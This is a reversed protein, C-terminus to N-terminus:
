LNGDIVNSCGDDAIKHTIEGLLGTVKGGLPMKFIQGSKNALACALHQGDGSLLVNSIKSVTLL